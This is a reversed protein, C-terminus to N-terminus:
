KRKYNPYLSFFFSNRQLENSGASFLLIFFLFLISIITPSPICIAHIINLGIVFFLFMIFSLLFSKKQHGYRMKPIAFAADYQTPSSIVLLDFIKYRNTARENSGSKHISTTDLECLCAMLVRSYIIIISFLIFFGHIKQTFSCSMSSLRVSSVSLFFCWVCVYMWLVSYFCYLITIRLQRQLRRWPSHSIHSYIPWFFFCRAFHSFFLLRLWIFLYVFLLLMLFFYTYIDCTSM